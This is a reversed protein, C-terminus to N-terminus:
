NGVKVMGIYIPIEGAATIKASLIGGEGSDNGRFRSDMKASLNGDNGGNHFFSTFECNQEEFHIGANAPIVPKKRRSHRNKEAPIAPSKKAAFEATKKRIGGGAATRNEGVFERRGATM